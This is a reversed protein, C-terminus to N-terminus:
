AANDATANIKATPVEGTELLMKLRKLDGRAQVAPEKRTIKAAIRGFQGYPPEYAIVAKVETGRGPPGDRFEVWGANKVDAGEEAEWAIREGPRDDTVTAIWSVTQGGPAKVTWRSRDRDLEEISEINDMFRPLNEFRRFFGYVDQRPQNITVAYGATAATSWGQRRALKAEFPTPSFARKLPDQEAVGRAILAGGVLAAAYGLVDGRRAGATALAGGALISIWREAGTVNPEAGGRREHPSLDANSGGLYLDADTM